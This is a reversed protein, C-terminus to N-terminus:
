HPQQVVFDFIKGEKTILISGQSFSGQYPIKYMNNNLKFKSLNDKFSSMLEPQAYEQVGWYVKRASDTVADFEGDKPRKTYVLAPKNQTDFAYIQEDTLDQLALQDGRIPYATQKHELYSIGVVRNSYATQTGYALATLQIIAIVSLDITIEKKSKEPSFILFTLCPSLIIDVFLVIRLAQWGGEAEFFPLPFWETLMFYLVISFAILSIATHIATAKVKSRINKM